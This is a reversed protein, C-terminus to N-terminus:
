GISGSGMYRREDVLKERGEPLADRFCVLGSPVPAKKVMAQTARRGPMGVM